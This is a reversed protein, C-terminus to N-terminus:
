AGQLIVFLKADEVHHVRGHGAHRAQNVVNKIECATPQAVADGEAAVGVSRQLRYQLLDDVFKSLM